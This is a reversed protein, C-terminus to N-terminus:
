IARILVGTLEEATLAIPNGKMSSAAMSKKVIMEAHDPTVRYQGLGPIGLDKVLRAAWAVGDDISALPNSTLIAAIERYRDLAINNPDRQQLAAINAAMVHSLLAACIAGHPAPFMGGIPGAFGHVAGLGANALALGGFLSALSMDERAAADAGNEFARRLSRAARAIGERCIADTLPNARHSVFPEILQALADLGTAATVAPPLSHTLEPDVLAVRPLMHPSRLSVKVRHEPSAIVANRSVESGTGATTPIALYPLSLDALPRGRGVVELYDLPDGRNASLAAIAKGADIVSGGGMGAVLRCGSSVAREVGARVLDTTPEGAVTFGVCELGEAALAARLPGARGVDQGTVVLARPRADDVGGLFGRALRGAESLRGPGFIIQTATAFEFRM